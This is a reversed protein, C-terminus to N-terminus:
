RDYDEPEYEENSEAQELLSEKAPNLVLQPYAKAIHERVDWAQIPAENIQEAAARAVEETVPNIAYISSPSILRTFAPNKSTAPVNVNLFGSGAVVRDTVRGAIKQRGMLELIAWIDFQETQQM